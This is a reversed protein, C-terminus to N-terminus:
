SQENAWGQRIWNEYCNDMEKLLSELDQVSDVTGNLHGLKRQPRVEKKGYWHLNTRSSSIPLMASEPTASISDPGLINLMAFAPRFNVKGLPMGLVARWHNEFQDTQCANQTYHGSNHVRPAIENVLVQGNETEFLEIAFTGEFNLAEALVKSFLQVQNEIHRSVGLSTAPGYVRYCIGKKQESIVLPYAALENQISRVAVVALERRFPIREEAYVLSKRKQAESCFTKANLFDEKSGSLFFIGKGDYGMRSWKLVCSGNFKKMLKRFQNELDADLDLVVYPASPIDLRKLLEKQKLKDQLIGIADLPPHFTVPCTRAVKRLVDCDVFENEFVVDSVQTFLCSLANEDHISGYIADVFKLAAPAFSNEAFVIPKLGLRFAADALMLSLQGGGIIGVRNVHRQISNMGADYV